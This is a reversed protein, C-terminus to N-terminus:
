SESEGSRGVARIKNMGWLQLEAQLWALEAKLEEVRRKAGTADADSKISGTALRSKGPPGIIVQSPPAPRGQRM